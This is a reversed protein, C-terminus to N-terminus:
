KKEITILLLPLFCVPPDLPRQCPCTLSQPWVLGRHAPYINVSGMEQTSPQIIEIIHALEEDRVELHQKRSALVFGLKSILSLMWCFFFYRLSFLSSTEQHWGDWVTLFVFLLAFTTLQIGAKHRRDNLPYRLSDLSALFGNEVKCTICKIQWSTFWRPREAHNHLIIRNMFYEEKNQWLLPSGGEPGAWGAPLLPGMMSLSTLWVGLCLQWMRQPPLLAWNLYDGKCLTSSASGFWVQSDLPM